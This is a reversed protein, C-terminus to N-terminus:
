YDTQADGIGKIMDEYNQIIAKGAKNVTEKLEGRESEAKQLAATLRVNESHEFALAKKLRENESQSAILAEEMAKVINNDLAKRPRM